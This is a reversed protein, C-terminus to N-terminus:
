ASLNTTVVRNVQELNQIRQHLIESNGAPRGAFRLCAAVKEALDSETMPRARTGLIQEETKALVRGDKLTVEVTVPVWGSREPEPIVVVRAALDRISGRDLVAQEEFDALGV